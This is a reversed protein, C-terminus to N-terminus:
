EEKLNEIINSAQSLADLAARRMLNLPQTPRSYKAYVIIGERTIWRLWRARVPRVEGRGRDLWYLIQGRTRSGVAITAALRTQNVFWSEISAYTRGTRIHPRLSQRLSEEARGALRGLFRGMKVTDLDTALLKQLVPQHDPVDIILRMSM